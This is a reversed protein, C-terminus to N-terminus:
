TTINTDFLPFGKKMDGVNQSAWKGGLEKM